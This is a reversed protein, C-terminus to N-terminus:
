SWEDLIKNYLILLIHYFFVLDFFSSYRIYGYNFRQYKLVYKPYRSMFCENKLNKVFTWEVLFNMFFKQQKVWIIQWNDTDTLTLM